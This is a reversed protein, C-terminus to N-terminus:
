LIETLLNALRVSAQIVRQQLIPRHDEIYEQDIKMGFQYGQYVLITLQLSEDAWTLLEEQNVRDVQKELLPLYTKKNALTSDKLGLVHRDWVWHLNTQEGQFYVFAKNGGLDDAYSVHLPQHIDAVFHSLFLLARWDSDPHKALRESMENIASLVCGNFLCDTESVRKANRSVNVYHWPSTHRYQPLKKVQDPWGCLEPFTQDVGTVEVLADIKKQISRDLKEYALACVLAHGQFDFAFIPSSNLFLFILIIRRM